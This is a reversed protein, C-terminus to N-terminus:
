SLAEVVAFRAGLSEVEGTQWRGDVVNGADAGSWVDTVRYAKAATTVNLEELSVVTGRRTRGGNIFLVAVKTQSFDLPKAWLQVGAVPRPGGVVWNTWEPDTNPRKAGWPDKFRLELVPATGTCAAPYATRATFGACHPSNQCFSIGEAVTMNATHVDGGSMQGVRCTFDPLQEGAQAAGTTPLTRILSGPHGAWAQNIAIAQKNGIIDLLPALNEDTLAISLVLPSSVICFAAFHARTWAELRPPVPCGSTTSSDCGLRGVQLMDPYAFCGPRSVPADWKQFRITSQLNDYWTGLRNNSDGSTRYFNFPCWDVTPCSSADDDTCDGWHCNETEFARGTENMLEAYRTLNCMSGCGDFKVADFGIAYLAAIDGEYNIDWGSAPEKSEICGCGNFYWGMRVGKSHGYDVLGQMDPFRQTDTAPTGNLYHQTGNIGRGCGEWGEDLGATCYGLDCLSVRGTWGKVTRNKATLADVTGRIMSQNMRTYFAYWSRWGRSPTKGLGNWGPPFTTATRPGYPARNCYYSRVLSPMALLLVAACVQSTVM